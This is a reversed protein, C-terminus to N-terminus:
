NRIIMILILMVIIFAIKSVIMITRTRLADFIESNYYKLNEYKTNIIFRKDYTEFLLVEEEIENINKNDKEIEKFKKLDFFSINKFDKINVLHYFDNFTLMILQNGNKCLYIKKVISSLNRRNFNFTKILYRLLIGLFIPSLYNIGEISYMFNLGIMFIVSGFGIKFNKFKSDYNKQEYILSVKESFGIDEFNLKKLPIYKFSFNQKLINNFRNNNNSFINNKYKNNRFILKQLAKM